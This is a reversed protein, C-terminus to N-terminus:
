ERLDQVVYFVVWYLFFIHVLVNLFFSLFIPQSDRLTNPRIELFLFDESLFCLIIVAPASFHKKPTPPSYKQSLYFMDIDGKSPLLCSSFVCHPEREREREGGLLFCM